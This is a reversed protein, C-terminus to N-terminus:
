RVVGSGAQGVTIFDVASLQNAATQVGGQFEIEARAELTEKALKSLKVQGALDTGAELPFMDLMKSNWRAWVINGGEGGLGEIMAQVFRWTERADKWLDGDIADWGPVIEDDIINLLDKSTQRILDNESRTLKSLEQRWTKVQMATIRDQALLDKFLVAEIEPLKSLARRHNKVSRPIDISELPQRIARTFEDNNRQTIQGAGTRSIGGNPLFDGVQGKAGRMAHVNLQLQRAANPGRRGAISRFLEGKETINQFINKIGGATRRFVGPDIDGQGVGFGRRKFNATISPGGEVTLAAAPDFTARVDFGATARGEIKGIRTTADLGMEKVARMGVLGAKIGAPLFTAAFGLNTASPSLRQAASGLDSGTIAGALSLLGTAGEFAGAATQFAPGARMLEIELPDKVSIWRNQGEDYRVVNGDDDQAVLNDLDIPM